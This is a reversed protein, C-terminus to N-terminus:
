GAIMAAVTAAVALRRPWGAVSNVGTNETGRLHVERMVDSVFSDVGGPPLISDGGLARFMIDPDIAAAHDLCADCARVHELM